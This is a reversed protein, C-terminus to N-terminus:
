ALSSAAYKQLYDPAIKPRMAEGIPLGQASDRGIARLLQQQAPTEIGETAVELGIAKALSVIGEIM